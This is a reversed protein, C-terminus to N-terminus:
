DDLLAKLQGLRNDLLNMTEDDATLQLDVKGITSAFQDYLATLISTKGVGRAGLMTIKLEKSM